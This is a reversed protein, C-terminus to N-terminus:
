KVGFDVKPTAKETEPVEFRPKAKYGFIGAFISNPIKQIYINYENVADNYRKRAVAIRNETGSLEYMLANFQENAKLNPYREVIMLLRSLAGEMQNSAQMKDEVTQAGALKSRADAIQTFVEKEHSAYGKVTSVLNPILDNRRKLQNDIEAWNNDVNNSLVVMKNKASFLMGVVIIALLIVVAIGGGCGLLVPLKSKKM